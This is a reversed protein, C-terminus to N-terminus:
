NRNESPIDEVSAYPSLSNSALFVTSEAIMEEVATLEEANMVYYRYKLDFTHKGIAVKSKFKKIKNLMHYRMVECVATMTHIHIKGDPIQEIDKKSVYYKTQKKLVRQYGQEELIDSTKERIRQNESEKLLDKQPIELIEISKKRADDYIEADIEKYDMGIYRTTRNIYQRNRNYMADFFDFRCSNFLDRAFFYTKEEKSLQNTNSPSKREPNDVMMSLICESWFENVYMTNTEYSSSYLYNLFVNDIDPIYKPSFKYRGFYVSHNDVQVSNALYNAEKDIEKLTRFEANICTFSNDARKFMNYDKEWRAIQEAKEKSGRKHEPENLAKCVEKYNKYNTKTRNKAYISNNAIM